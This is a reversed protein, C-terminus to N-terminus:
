PASCRPWAKSSAYLTLFVPGNFGTKPLFFELSLFPEQRQLLEAIQM